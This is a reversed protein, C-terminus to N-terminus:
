PKRILISEVQVHKESVPINAIYRWFANLSTDQPPVFDHKTFLFFIYNVEKQKESELTYDVKGGPPFNQTTGAMIKHQKEWANPFLQEAHAATLVFVRLFADQYPYAQFTLADGHYYMERVGKVDARFGPDPKEAHLYVVAEIVVEQFWQGYETKKEEKVVTFEAVEGRTEVNIISSFLQDMKEQNSEQFLASTESIYEAVGAKRLADLRAEQLARERAVAPSMDDSIQVKGMGEVIKKEQAQVASCGSLFLIIAIIYFYCKNM